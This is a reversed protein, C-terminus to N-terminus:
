KENEVDMGMNIIGQFCIEPSAPALDLSDKNVRKM